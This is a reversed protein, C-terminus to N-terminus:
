GTSASKKPSLLCTQNPAQPAVVLTDRQRLPAFPRIFSRASQGYGHLALLLAPPKDGNREPEQIAYYVTFDIRLPEVSVSRDSATGEVTETAEVFMENNM